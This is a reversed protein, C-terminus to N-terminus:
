LLGTVLAYVLGNHIRISVFEYREAQAQEEYRAKLDPSITKWAQAVVQSRTKFGAGEYGGPKDAFHEQLIRQRNESIFILYATRGRKPKAPDRLLKITTNSPIRHSGAHM